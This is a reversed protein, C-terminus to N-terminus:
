YNGLKEMTYSCKDDFIVYIPVKPRQQRCFRIVSFCNHGSDAPLESNIFIGGIDIKANGLITQAEKGTQALLPKLLKTQPDAELAKLFALDPDIILPPKPKNKFM